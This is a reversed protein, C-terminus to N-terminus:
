SWNLDQQIQSAILPSRRDRVYVNGPMSKAYRKMEAARQAFHVLDTRGQFDVIALSVSTLPFQRQEGGRSVGEVMGRERDESPYLNPVLRKFCRIIAQCVREARHPPTM